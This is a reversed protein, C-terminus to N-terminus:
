RFGSGERDPKKKRMPQTNARHGRAAKRAARGSLPMEPATPAERNATARQPRALARSVSGRLILSNSAAPQQRRNAPVRSEFRAHVGTPRIM